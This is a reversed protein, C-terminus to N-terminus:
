VKAKSSLNQFSDIAKMVTQEDDDSSDDNSFEEDSFWPSDYEEDSWEFELHISKKKNRKSLTEELEKKLALYQTWLQKQKEPNM